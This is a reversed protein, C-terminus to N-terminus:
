VLSPDNRGGTGGGVGLVGVGGSLFL